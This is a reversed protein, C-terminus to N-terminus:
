KVIEEIKKNKLYKLLIYLFMKKLQNIGDVPIRIFDNEEIIIENTIIGDSDRSSSKIIKKVLDWNIYIKKGLKGVGIFLITNQSFKIEIRGFIAYITKWILICSPIIFILWLLLFVINEYFIITGFFGAFSILSFFLSFPLLYFANKSHTYIGIILQGHNKKVWTGKPPNLLMKGAEIYEDKNLLNSIYFLENCNKCFCINESINIESQSITEQCKPCNIEM